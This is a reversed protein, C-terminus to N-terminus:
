ILPCMKGIACNRASGYSKNMAVFECFVIELSIPKTINIEIGAVIGAEGVVVVEKACSLGIIGNTM